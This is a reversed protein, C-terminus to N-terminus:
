KGKLYQYAISGLTSIAPIAFKVLALAGRVQAQAEENKTLREEIRDLRELLMALMDDQM